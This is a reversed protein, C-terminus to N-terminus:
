MTLKSPDIKEVEWKQEDGKDAPAITIGGDASSAILAKGSKVEIIQYLGDSLKTLRWAPREKADKAFAVQTVPVQTGDAKAAPAFTKGTFHNQLNFTSEGAPHLKWTMCKWPQAPYLVMRAGNAGSADEPRLLKGFKKNRIQCSEPTAAPEAAFTMTAAALLALGALVSIIKKM